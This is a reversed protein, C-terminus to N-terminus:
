WDKIAFFWLLGLRYRVPLYRLVVDYFAYSIFAVFICLSAQHLTFSFCSLELSYWKEILFTFQWFLFFITLVDIQCRFGLANCFRTVFWFAIWTSAILNGNKKVLEPQYKKTVGNLYTVLSFISVQIIEISNWYYICTDNM